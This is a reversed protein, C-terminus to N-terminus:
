DLYGKGKCPGHNVEGSGNCAFHIVWPEEPKGTQVYGNICTCRVKGGNCGCPRRFSLDTYRRQPQIPNYDTPPQYDVRERRMKQNPGFFYVLMFIFATPMMILIGLGSLICGVVWTTKSLGADDYRESPRCVVVLFNVVALLISGAVYLELLQIQEPTFSSLNDPVM